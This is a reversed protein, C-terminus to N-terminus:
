TIIDWKTLNMTVKDNAYFEINNSNRRPFVRSTITKEGDDIFVEISSKDIFIRYKLKNEKLKYKLKRKNTNDENYINGQIKHGSKSRDFIIRGKSKNYSLRTYENDSKLLDIGFVTANELDVSVELEIVNGKIEEYSVTGMFQETIAHKHHRYKKIEEIPTQILKGDKVTLVRPLTISGAWGHHLENTPMIREWMNMWAVMIRRGKSDIMTQPAYFDFGHDIETFSKYEYTGKDYDLEGIMYIASHVNAYDYGETQLYQPSVLLVDTQNLTFIDPCEWMKGIKNNSRAITSIYDWHIMDISKMFVITGSFDNSSRVGIVCYFIGDKKWIKPDRFDAPVIKKEEPLDDATIVPNENIPTYNIGDTSVCINQVQKGPWNETYMLYHKGDHEIASGSFAAGGEPGDELPVLAVPLYEWKVLDDSIAHGWHMPGWVSSFPNYQYFLHYKDKYLSFGNPDNIWGIEGILHYEHRYMGNVKHKHEKIFKEVVQKRDM